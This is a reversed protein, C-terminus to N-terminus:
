LFGVLVLTILWGWEHWSGDMWMAVNLPSIQRAVLSQVDGVWAFFSISKRRSTYSSLPWLLFVKSFIALM